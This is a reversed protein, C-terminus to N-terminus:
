PQSPIGSPFMDARRDLAQVLTIREKDLEETLASQIFDTNLVYRNGDQHPHEEFPELGAFDTAIASGCTVAFLAATLIPAAARVMQELCWPEPKRGGTTELPFMQIADDNASQVVRGDFGIAVVWVMQPAVVPGDRPEMFPAIQLCAAVSKRDVSLEARSLRHPSAPELMYGLRILQMDRVWEVSGRNDAFAHPIQVGLVEAEFFLQQSFWPYVNPLETADFDEDTTNDFLYRVCSSVDITPAGALDTVLQRSLPSARMHQEELVIDKFSRHQRNHREDM